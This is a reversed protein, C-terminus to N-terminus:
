VEVVFLVVIAAVTVVLVVVLARAARRGNAGPRPVFVSDSGPRADGTSAQRLGGREM